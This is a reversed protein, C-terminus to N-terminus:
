KPPDGKLAQLARLNDRAAQYGPRLALATELERVAGARDGERAYAVGLGNHAEALDPNAALAARYHDV